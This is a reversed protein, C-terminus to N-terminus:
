VYDTSVKIESKNVKKERKQREEKQIGERKTIRQLLTEQLLLIVTVDDKLL